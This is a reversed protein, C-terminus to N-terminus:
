DASEIQGGAKVWDPFGGLNYINTYGAENLCKGALAARNGSECYVVIPQEAKVEKGLKMTTEIVGKPINLAGKIKGSKTVEDLERVDIIYYDE